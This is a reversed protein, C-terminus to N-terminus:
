TGAPQLIGLLLGAAVQLGALVLTSSVKRGEAADTDHKSAARM